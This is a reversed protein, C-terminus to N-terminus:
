YINHIPSTIDYCDYRDPKKSVSHLKEHCVTATTTAIYYFKRHNLFAAIARCTSMLSMYGNESLGDDSTTTRQDSTARYTRKPRFHIKPPSAPSTAIAVFAGAGLRPSLLLLPLQLVLGIAGNVATHDIAIQHRGIGPVRISTLPEDSAIFRYLAPEHRGGDTNTQNLTSQRGGV